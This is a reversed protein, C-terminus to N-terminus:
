CVGNNWSLIIPGKLTQIRYVPLAMVAEGATGTLTIAVCDQCLGRIIEFELDSRKGKTEMIQMEKQATNCIWRYEAPVDVVLFKALSTSAAMLKNVQFVASWRYLEFGERLSEGSVLISFVRVLHRAWACWTDEVCAILSKRVVPTQQVLKKISMNVM